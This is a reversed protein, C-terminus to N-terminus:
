SAPVNIGYIKFHASIIRGRGANLEFWGGKTKTVKIVKGKIAVTILTKKDMFDEVKSADMVGTTDPKDGFVTGHSLPVHKQAYVTLSILLFLLLITTKM